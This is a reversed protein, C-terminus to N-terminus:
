SAIFASLAADARGCTRWLEPVAHRLGMLYAYCELGEDESLEGFALETMCEGVYETWADLESRSAAAALFVNSTEQISLAFEADARYRRVVIRLADALATNRTAATVTALGYLIAVLQAKNEINRLRYNATRLAHEALETQKENLGFTLGVNVLAVFSGPGTQESNLQDEIIDIFGSPLNGRPTEGGELPGPIFSSFLNSYSRLSDSEDSYLLRHIPSDKASQLHRGACIMIRGIFESKIQSPAAFRPDWRPEQRMDALSQLYHQFKRSEAMWNCFGDIDVSSPVLQRHILAAQSMAALRRYFPPTDSLLRTKALEGDVFCFLSSLLKFARAPGDADDDRIQEILRILPEELEPRTPLFRLGVEIAGLQSIRDGNTVLYAYAKVLDESSLRDIDIEDTLSAHSSLLLSLLFGEYPRWESLRDLHSRGTGAAYEGVSTSGDYKGVLRVFYTRSPPVLSSISSSGGAIENSIVNSITVPTFSFERNFAPIEEDKPARHSLIERWKESACRPLNVDYAAQDFYGLRIKRDPALATFFPPLAREINGTLVLNPLKGEPNANRVQWKGQSEDIVDQSAKGSLVSRVADSLVSLQISVDDFTLTSDIRLQYEERFDSDEILTERISPPVHDLALDAIASKINPSNGVEWVKPLM